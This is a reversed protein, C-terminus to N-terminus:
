FYYIYGLLARTETSSDVIPSDKIETALSTAELDFIIFNNKNIMYNSRIGLEINVASDGAYFARQANVETQQVGYYYSVYEEDFWNVALRPTISLDETIQWRRDIKFSFRSGESDGSVEALSEFTVDAWPNQWQVKAGAWLGGKREQMGTLFPSDKAKYGSFDYSGIIGFNIKQEKSLNISPLKFEFTPGMLQFYENEYMVFPIAQVDSDIDTYAKQSSMVAVGLGWSSETNDSDDAHVAHTVAMGMLILSSAVCRKARDTIVSFPKDFCKM